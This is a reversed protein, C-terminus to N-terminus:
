KNNLKNLENNCKQNYEIENVGFLKKYDFNNYIDCISEFISLNIEEKGTKEFMFLKMYKIDSDMRKPHVKSFIYILFEIKEDVDLKKGLTICPINEINTMIDMLVRIKKLPSKEKDFKMFLHKIDKIFLDSHNYNKENKIIHKAEIWSLKLSTRYICEDRESSKLPYLKDYLKNLIFDFLKEKVIEFDDKSVIKENKIRILVFNIYYNIKEPIKLQKLVNIINISMKSEYKVFNPFFEIFQKINRCIKCHKNIEGLILDSIQHEKNNSEYIKFEKKKENYRFEMQIPIKMNESIDKIKENFDIDKLINKIEKYYNIIKKTYKTNGFYDSLLNIDLLEISKNLDQELEKYLLEYDNETLEKPIKKLYELLSNVYYEYPFTNDIVFENSKSFFKIEKFIEFTNNKSSFELQNLKKCNCLLGCLYNKVKIIYNKIQDENNEIKKLEKIYFFSNKNEIKFLYDYNPNNLLNYMLIHDEIPGKVKTKEEINKIYNDYITKM